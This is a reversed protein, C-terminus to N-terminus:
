FVNMINITSGAKNRSNNKDQIFEWRPDEKQWFSMEPLTPVEINAEIDEYETNNEENNM